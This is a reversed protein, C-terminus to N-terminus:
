EDSIVKLLEDHEIQLRLLEAKVWSLRQKAAIMSEDPTAFRVVSAFMPGDWGSVTCERGHGRDFVRLITGVSERSKDIMPVVVKDGEVFGRRYNPM